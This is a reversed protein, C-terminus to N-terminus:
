SHRCVAKIAASKGRITGADKDFHRGGGGGMWGMEGSGGGREGRGVGVWGKGGLLTRTEARALLCPQGNTQKPLGRRTPTGVEM